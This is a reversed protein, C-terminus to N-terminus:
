SSRNSSRGSLPAFSGIAIEDVGQGSHADPRIWDVRGRSRPHLDVTHSMGSAPKVTVRGAATWQTGEPTTAIDAREDHARARVRTITPEDTVSLLEDDIVERVSFPDPSGRLVGYRESMQTLLGPYTLVFLRSDLEVTDDGGDTSVRRLALEALGNRTCRVIEDQAAIWCGDRVAHVRRTWLTTPPEITLPLLYETVRPPTDASDIHILVPNSKDMVWVDTGRVGIAGANFSGTAEPVDDLDLDVIMGTPHFPEDVPLIRWEPWHHDSETDLDSVRETGPVRQRGSATSEYQEEVLQLRRVRGTTTQPHGPIAHVFDPSLRGPLRVRGSFPAHHLWRATWGDGVVVFPWQLSGEQDLLPTKGYDPRVTVHFTDVGATAQDVDTDFLLSVSIVGGVYLQPLSGDMFVASSVFMSITHDRTSRHPTSDPSHVARKREDRVEAFASVEVRLDAVLADAIRESEEAAEASRWGTEPVVNSEWHKMWEALRRALSESLGYDEPDMAYKDTGSEWLPHDRGYDPFFRIVRRYGGSGYSSELHEEM